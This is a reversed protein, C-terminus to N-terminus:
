ADWFPTVRRFREWRRLVRPLLETSHAAIFGLVLGVAYAHRGSAGGLHGLLREATTRDNLTGLSDQVAALRQLFRRPGKGPYLPAFIEAAYRTRKARLRVAHLGPADLEALDDASRLKRLRRNLVGAAFGHLSLPHDETKPQDANAEPQGAEPQDAQPPAAPHWSRAAALWALEIGLRRFAASGLFERLAAHCAHRQRTAASILRALRPETPFAEHVLPLTEGLFVDWDRVPGLRQTLAKLNASAARLEDCDLAPRFLTMASRLRRLAVRMQHVPDPGSADEAALPAYHLVVDTQHALVFAFAEALGLGDPLEAAGVRRMPLAAARAATLAEGALTARAVEASLADALTLALQLVAPEDGSLHVRAVAHESTVARLTGRLLTLTAAGQDTSFALTHRRGTFAVAPALPAPLEAGLTELDAAEAVVPPPSGPPWADAPEPVLKELRWVNRERALALGSATLATDASDHWVIRQQQPRSRAAAALLPLRLLRPADDPDLSLELEM